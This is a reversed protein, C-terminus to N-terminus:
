ISIKGLKRGGFALLGVLGLSMILAPTGPEPVRSTSTNATDLLIDGSPSYVTYFSFGGKLTVTATGGGSGKDILFLPDNVGVNSTGLTNSGYVAWGEGHQISGIKISTVGAGTFQIFNPKVIEHDPVDNALGVGTEVDGPGNDKFFLETANGLGDFGYVTISSSGSTFTESNENDVGSGSPDVGFSFSAAFGFGGLAILAVSLIALSRLLRM